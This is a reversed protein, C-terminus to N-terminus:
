SFNSRCAYMYSVFFIAGFGYEQLLPAANVLHSRVADDFFLMIVRESDTNNRKNEFACSSIGLLFLFFIIKSAYFRNIM